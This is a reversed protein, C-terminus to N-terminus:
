FKIWFWLYQKIYYWCWGTECYSSVFAILGHQLKKLSDKYNIFPDKAGPAFSLYYGGVVYPSILIVNNNISNNTNTTTTTTTTTYLNNAYQYMQSCYQSATPPEIQTNYIGEAFINKAILNILLFSIFYFKKKM